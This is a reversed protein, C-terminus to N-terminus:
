EEGLARVNLRLSNYGCTFPFGLEERYLPIHFGQQSESDAAVEDGWFFHISPQTIPYPGIMSGFLPEKHASFQELRDNHRAKTRREHVISSVPVDSM